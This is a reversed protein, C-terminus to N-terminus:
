EFHVYLLGLNLGFHVYSLDHIWRIARRKRFYVNRTAKWIQLVFRFDYGSPPLSLNTRRYRNRLLALLDETTFLPRGLPIEAVSQM